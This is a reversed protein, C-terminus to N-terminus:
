GPVRAARSASSSRQRGWAWSCSGTRPKAETYAKGDLIRDIAVQQNATAQRFRMLRENPNATSM